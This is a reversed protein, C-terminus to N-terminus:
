TDEIKIYGPETLFTIKMKNTYEKIVRSMGKNMEDLVQKSRYVQMKHFAYNKSEDHAYGDFGALFVQKIKYNMLLKLLLLGANDQVYKNENLLDRYGIKLYANRAPINSTVICKKLADKELERYRRLNSLFIFDTIHEDYEFNVSITVVSSSVAYELIKKKEIVSSRGPAILLVDKGNLIKSLENESGQDVGKDLYTFYKKEIYDHSFTVGAEREFMSFVQDMDRFTLTKKEDLFLAYNPHINHVASLYNPLTYGWANEAYFTNLREDIIELLPNVRYDKGYNENLYDVFLETNLNGAGRGMGYVSTDIIVNRKMPMDVLSQANAYALQLNNHSHFGIWIDKNLNKDVIYLMHMLAKKKMVGFSDVIYFAYPNIQNVADILDLFERDSYNLSVMAQVFIKYGKEQIAACTNVGEKWCNKHFAVRIGDIRTNNCDPIQSVDYENWNMMLVFMSKNSNEPFFAAADDLKTFTTKDRNGDAKSTLYGCEIIDINAAILSQIISEINEYGFEWQNCYGGDRLTCDLVRIENM